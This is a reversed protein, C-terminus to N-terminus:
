ADQQTPSTERHASDPAPHSGGPVLDVGGPHFPQCKCVRVVAMGSGKLAGHVRIAEAAYASCSPYFRCRPPFLPSIGVRYLQILWLMLTKM